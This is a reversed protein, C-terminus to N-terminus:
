IVRRRILEEIEESAIQVVKTNIGSKSYFKYTNKTVPVSKMRTELYRMALARDRKNTIRSVEVFRQLLKRREYSSAVGLLNFGILGGNRSATLLLIPAADVPMFGKDKGSPTYGFMYISGYEMQAPFVRKELMRRKMWIELKTM